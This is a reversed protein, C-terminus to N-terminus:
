KKEDKKEELINRPPPLLQGFEDSAKVEVPKLKEKVPQINDHAVAKDVDKKLFDKDVMFYVDKQIENTNAHVVAAPIKIEPIKIEPIRIEPIPPMKVDNTIQVVDKPFQVVVEQQQVPVSNEKLLMYSGVSLVVSFLPSAFLLFVPEKGEMEVKM